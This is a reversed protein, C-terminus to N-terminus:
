QEPESDVFQQWPEVYAIGREYRVVVVEAGIEIPSDDVSRAGESRRAGDRVFLIEGIGGERIARTVHGVTGEIRFDDSNLQRQGALLIRVLFFFIGAGAVIGAVAGVLLSLGASWGLATRVVYGVGGFFALFATATNLNFPSPSSSVREDAAGHAHGAEAAHAASGHAGHAAAGHGLHGHGGGHGLHGEGHGAHAHGVHLAGAAVNFITLALGFVFCFLFVAELLDM